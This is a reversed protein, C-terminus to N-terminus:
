VSRESSLSQKGLKKESGNNRLTDVHVVPDTRKQRRIKQKVVDALRSLHSVCRKSTLGRQYLPSVQRATDGPDQDGSSWTTESAAQLQDSDSQGRIRDEQLPLRVGETLPTLRRLPLM